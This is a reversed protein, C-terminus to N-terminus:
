FFFFFVPFSGGCTVVVLEKIGWEVETEKKVLPLGWWKSGSVELETHVCM